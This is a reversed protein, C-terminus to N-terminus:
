ERLTVVVLHSHEKEIEVAELVDVVRESMGDAVLQQLGDGRPKDIADATGVGDAPLTAVLENDQDGFECMGFVGGDGGAAHNLGDGLRMKGVM